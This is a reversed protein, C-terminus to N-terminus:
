YWAHVPDIIYEEISMKFVPRVKMDKPSMHVASIDRVSIPFMPIIIPSARLYVAIAGRYLLRSVM